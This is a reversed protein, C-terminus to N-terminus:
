CRSLPAPQRRPTGALRRHRARSSRRARGHHLGVRDGDRGAHARALLELGREIPLERHDNDRMAGAGVGRQMHLNGRPGARNLLVGDGDGVADMGIAAKLGVQAALEYPEDARRVHPRPLLHKDVGGRRRATPRGLCPRGGNGHGFLHVSTRGGDVASVRVCGRHPAASGCVRSDGEVRASMGNRGCAEPFSTGSYKRQGIVPQRM